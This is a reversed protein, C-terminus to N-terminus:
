HLAVSFKEEKPPLCTKGDSAFFKVMGEIQTPSPNKREIRMIFHALTTFETVYADFIPELVKKPETTEKLNEFFHLNPNKEFKFTTPGPGGENYLSYIHWGKDIRATIQMEVTDSNIKRVSYNWKVPNAKQAFVNGQFSLLFVSLYRIFIHLGLQM